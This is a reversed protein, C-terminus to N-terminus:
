LGARILVLWHEAVQYVLLQVNNPTGLFGTEPLEDGCFKNLACDIDNKDM